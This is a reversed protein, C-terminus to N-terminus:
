RAVEQGISGAGIILVQKQNYNMARLVRLILRLMLHLVLLFILDLLGFYILVERPFNVYDFVLAWAVLAAWAMFVAEGVTILDVFLRTARKSTYVPLLRFVIAWILGAILYPYPNAIRFGPPVAESM